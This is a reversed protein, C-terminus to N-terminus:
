LCTFVTQINIKMNILNLEIKKVEEMIFMVM